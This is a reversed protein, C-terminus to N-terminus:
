VDPLIQLNDYLTLDLLVPRGQDTAQLRIELNGDFLKQMHRQVVDAKLFGHVQFRRPGRDPPTIGLHLCAAKMMIAAVKCSLQVRHGQPDFVFTADEADVMPNGDQPKGVFVPLKGQYALKDGSTILGVPKPPEKPPAAKAPAAPSGPKAGPKQPQPPGGAAAPGSPKSGPYTPKQPQSASGPMANNPNARPTNNPKAGPVGPKPKEEQKPQTSTPTPAGPMRFAPREGTLSTPTGSRASQPPRTPPVVLNNASVEGTVNRPKIPTPVFDTRRANGFQNRDTTEVRDRGDPKPAPASPKPPPAKPPPQNM